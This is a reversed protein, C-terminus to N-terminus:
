MLYSLHLLIAKLLSQYIFKSEFSGGLTQSIEQSLQLVKMIPQKSSSDSAHTASSKCINSTFGNSLSKEEKKTFINYCTSEMSTVPPKSYNFLPLCQQM